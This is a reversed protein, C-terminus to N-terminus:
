GAATVEPGAAARPTFDPCCSRAARYRGHRVCIGDDSCVSAYGSSFSTLGPISSELFAPDNCFHTCVACRLAPEQQRRRFIM